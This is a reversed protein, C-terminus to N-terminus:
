GRSEMADCGPPPWVDEQEEGAWSQPDSFSTQDLRSQARHLVAQDPQGSQVLTMEIMRDVLKGSDVQAAEMRSLRREINEEMKKISDELKVMDSMLHLLADLRKNIATLSVNCEMQRVDVSLIGETLETYVDKMRGM